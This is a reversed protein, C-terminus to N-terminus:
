GTESTKPVVFTVQHAERLDPPELKRLLAHIVTEPVAEKRQRNQMFVEQWDPEIYVIRTRAGYSHFLNLLRARQQRTVNTANWVFGQGKRLFVRARAMGEQAVPGQNATAPVGMEGRIEDLSIMPLDPLNRAIWTDKGAGPLGSMLVVDSGFQEHPTYTPDRGERNLYEIRAGDSAFDFPQDACGLEEFQALSLATNDLIAAQDACIRGLADAQAHLCLLDARCTLSTEIALRPPDPRDLLWFPLQHSRILACLEERWQFPVRARGLLQRAIAAGVRSHGRSTIRGAEHRTTAPKGIDHLMATWFLLARRGPNLTQWGPLTLLAEVVMRTHTGVDGEGHHMPDQPCTDLVDLEPWLGWLAAWNPSQGVPPVLDLLQQFSHSSNLRM